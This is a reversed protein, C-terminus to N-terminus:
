YRGVVIKIQGIVPDDMKRNTKQKIQDAYMRLEQALYSNACKITLVKGRFEFKLDQELVHRKFGLLQDITSRVEKFVFARELGRKFKPDKKTKSVILSINTFAMNNLTELQCLLTYIARIV